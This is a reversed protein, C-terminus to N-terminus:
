FPNIELIAYQENISKVTINEFRKNNKVLIPVNGADKRPAKITKKIGLDLINMIEQDVLLLVKSITKIDFEAINNLLKEFNILKKYTKGNNELIDIVDQLDQSSVYAFKKHGIASYRQVVVKDITKKSFESKLELVTKLINKARFVHHRKAAENFKLYNKERTLTANKNHEKKQTDVKGTDKKASIVSDLQKFLDDMNVNVKTSGDAALLLGVSFLFSIIVKM